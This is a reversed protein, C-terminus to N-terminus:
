AISQKSVTRVFNVIANDVAKPASVRNHLLQEDFLAPEVRDCLRKIKSCIECFKKFQADREAPLQIARFKGKSGRWKDPLQEFFRVTYQRDIPSILNPLLHHLAKSNVVITSESKSLKLSEYCPRMQEILRSYSSESMELLSFERLQQLDNAKVLLSGRFVDWDTLKAKTKKDDGMRHLGWATLTAYLLEIHRDSLFEKRGVRLCELHFHVSPGGFTKFQDYSGEFYSRQGSLFMASNM